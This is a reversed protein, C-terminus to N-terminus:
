NDNARFSSPCGRLAHTSGILQYRQQLAYLPNKVTIENDSYGSVELRQQITLLCVRYLSSLLLAAM